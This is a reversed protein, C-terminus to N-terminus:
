EKLLNGPTKGYKEGFCKVFYSTSSFGTKYAVENVNLNGSELIKYASNLRYHLILKNSSLNCIAKVKRNLHAKSYGVEHALMEVFFVPNEINAEITEYLKKLLIKDSPKAKKLM